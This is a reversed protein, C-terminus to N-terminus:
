KIPLNATKSSVGGTTLVVPQSGPSLGAPVTINIQYEGPYGSLGCYAVLANKGGVTVTCPQKTSPYAGSSWKAGSAPQNNVPGLGNGFLEVVDGAHAPNSASIATSNSAWTTADIAAAIGGSQFLQPAYTVLPVTVVNSDLFGDVTVKVLASSAGQLEWPIQVNLQGGSQAVYTFYGPYGNYDAPNGDYAGPVDFSVSVGDLNMPYPYYPFQDGAYSLSSNGVRLPNALNAGYISIYSGAAINTSGAAAEGISAINPLPLIVGCPWGDSYSGGFQISMGSATATIQPRAAASSSAVVDVWAIGYADTLCTTASTSSSPSCAPEGTVSKVTASNRPSVTFYVPSNVVAVGSSDILKIGIAGADSGVATEFCGPYAYVSQGNMIAQMDYVTGSPVLFLYPVHISVGTGSITVTGTYEDTAPLSGSLTVTVTASAGGAVTVSTKDVAIAAGSAGGGNVDMPATAAVSLVAATTGLNAILIQKSQPLKSVAGFSLSVPNTGDTTVVQAIVASGTAAGVDLRGAGVNLADVNNGWSDGPTDQAATNMLLAKIQAATYSPHLQWLLAAAGAVMPASFSTGSATIYGNSSYMGSAQDFQQTAMYMANPALFNPDFVASDTAMLAPGDFVDSGGTSVLDPKLALNGPSPGPSSFSLFQNQALPPVFGPSYLAAAQQNYATLDMEWGAPDVTVSSGPHADIYSKLNQGDSSSIMVVPGYLPISFTADQIEVPAPAGAANMYFIIGSAGADFANAAKTAFDCGGGQRILAIAPFLDPPTNFAYQPMAACAYGDNGTQAADIVPMRTAGIFSSYADSTQAGINQLTVPGGVLSVSPQMVHSNTIAGVAIVSPANGPSSILSFGPLMWNYVFNWGNEGDNGAAVTILMGKQAAMEFNYALFDCPVGAAQGCAAGTDLPGMTAIAGASVNAIHMGDAFADNIAM